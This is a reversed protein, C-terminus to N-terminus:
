QNLLGSALVKKVIRTGNAEVVLILAQYQANPFSIECSHEVEILLRGSLDILTLRDPCAGALKVKVSGSTPNPYIELEQSIDLHDSELIQQQQLKAIFMDGSGSTSIQGATTELDGKYTGTLYVNGNHFAIDTGRQAYGIPASVTDGFIYNNVLSGDFESFTAIFIRQRIKGVGSVLKNGWYGTLHIYGNGATVSHALEEDEDGLVRTWELDLNQDYKSIFISKKSSGHYGVVVISSDGVHISTPGKYTGSDLEIKYNTLAGNPNYHLLFTKLSGNSAILTDSGLELYDNFYGSVWVNGATSKISYGNSRYISVGQDIWAISGNFNLKGVYFLGANEGTVFLGDTSWSISHIADKENTVASGWHTAWQYVGNSDYKIVINDWYGNSTLTDDGPFILTGIFSGTLYINSSDDCVISTPDMSYLGNVWVLEGNPNHKALYGSVQGLSISDYEAPLDLHGTCYVFGNDDIVLATGIDNGGGGTGYLFPQTIGIFPFLALFIIIPYIRM